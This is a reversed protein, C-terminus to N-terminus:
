PLLVSISIVSVWALIVAPIKFKMKEISVATATLIYIFLFLTISLAILISIPDTELADLTDLIKVPNYMGGSSVGKVTFYWIGCVTGVMSYIAARWYKNVNIGILTKGIVLSLIYVVLSTLPLLNASIEVLDSIQINM